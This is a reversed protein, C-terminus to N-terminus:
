KKKMEIVNREEKMEVRVKVFKGKKMKKDKNDM